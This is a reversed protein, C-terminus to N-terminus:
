VLDTNQHRNFASPAGRFRQVVKLATDKGASDTTAGASESSSVRIRWFIENVAERV